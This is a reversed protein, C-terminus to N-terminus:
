LFPWKTWKYMYKKPAIHGAKEEYFELDCKHRKIETPELYFLSWSLPQLTLRMLIFRIHPACSHMLQIGTAQPPAMDFWHCRINSDVGFPVRMTNGAACIIRQLFVLASPSTNSRIQNSITQCVPQDYIDIHPARSKRSYKQKKERSIHLTQYVTM